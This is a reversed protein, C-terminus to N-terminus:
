CCYARNSKCCPLEYTGLVVNMLSYFVIEAYPTDASTAVELWLSHCTDYSDPNQYLPESFTALMVRLIDIRNKDYQTSTAVSKEKSGVGPARSVYLTWM